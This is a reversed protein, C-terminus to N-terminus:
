LHLVRRLSQDIKLYEDQLLPNDHLWKLRQMEVFAWEQFALEEPTRGLKRSRKGVRSNPPLKTQAFKLGLEAEATKLQLWPLMHKLAHMATMDNAEWVWRGAYPTTRQPDKPGWTRKRFYLAGGFAIYMRAVAEIHVQNVQAHLRYRYNPQKGYSTEKRKNYTFSRHLAVHGEGDFLGACYALELDSNV